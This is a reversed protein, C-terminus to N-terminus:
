DVRSDADQSSKKELKRELLALSLTYEWLVRQMVYYYGYWGDLVLGKWFLTYCFVLFPAPLILRRIRDRVSLQADEKALIYEAENVVYRNQSELWRKLPKRDDHLVHASLSSLRGMVQIRQTHGENKYISKERRVLLARPPMLTSRLPRGFICYHFPVFYGDISGDDKLASMEQRLPDTVFYDADLTLVWTSTVQSLGFNWQDAFTDFTRQVVAVNRFSQAITRTTDSSNGDVVVIRRAWGLASLTRQLNATENFAIILPTIEELM